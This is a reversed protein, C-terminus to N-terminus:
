SVTFLSRGLVGAEIAELSRRRNANKEEYSEDGLATRLEEELAVGETLWRSATSRYAATVDDEDVHEFGASRLLEPYPVDTAQFTPADEAYANREAESATVNMRLVTFAMRGDPRLVRRCARLM